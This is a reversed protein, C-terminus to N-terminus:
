YSKQSSPTTYHNSSMHSSNGGSSLGKYVQVQPRYRGADVGSSFQRQNDYDMDENWGGGGGRGFSPRGGGRGSGGRGGSYGGRGGGGAGRSGGWAGNGDGGRDNNHGGGYGGDNSYGAKMKSSKSHYGSIFALTKQLALMPNDNHQASLKKAADAFMPLVDDSVVELDSLMSSAKAAIVDDHKPM